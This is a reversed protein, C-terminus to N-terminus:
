MRLLKSDFISNNCLSKFSNFFWIWGLYQLITDLMWVCFASYFSFECFNVVDSWLCSSIQCLSISLIIISSFDLKPSISDFCRLSSFLCSSLIECLMESIVCIMQSRFVVLNWPHWGHRQRYTFFFKIWFVAVWAWLKM